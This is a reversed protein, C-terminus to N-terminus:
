TVAVRTAILLRLKAVTLLEGSGNEKVCTLWYLGAGGITTIDSASFTLSSIGNAADDHSSIDKQLRTGTTEETSVVWHLTQGAISYAVGGQKFQVAIPTTDGAYVTMTKVSAM